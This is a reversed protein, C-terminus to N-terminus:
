GEELNVNKCRAAKGCPIGRLRAKHTEPVFDARTVVKRFLRGRSAGAEPFVKRCALEPVWM